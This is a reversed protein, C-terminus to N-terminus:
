ASPRLHWYSALIEYLDASIQVEDDSFDNLWARDWRKADALIETIEGLRVSISPEALTSSDDGTFLRLRPRMNIGELAAADSVV